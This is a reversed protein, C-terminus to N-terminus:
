HAYLRSFSLGHQIQHVDLKRMVHPPMTGSSVVSATIDQKNLNL